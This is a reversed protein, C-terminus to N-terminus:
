HYAWRTAAAGVPGDTAMPEDDNLPHATRTMTTTKTMEWRRLVPTHTRKANGTSFNKAKAQRDTNTTLVLNQNQQVVAEAAAAAEPLGEAVVPM